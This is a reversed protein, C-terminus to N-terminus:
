EALVAEYVKVSGKGKVKVDHATLKGAEVLQRCLASVKQTSAGVAAAIEAATLSGIGIATVIADKVGENALQAKSPTNRRKENRADLKALEGNAFAVVDANDALNASVTSLFERYTM